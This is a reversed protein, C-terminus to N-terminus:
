VTLIKNEIQFAKNTGCVGGKGFFKPVGQVKGLLPETIEKGLPLIDGVKLDLLVKTTVKSRALEIVMEVESNKLRDLFREIWSHDVELQDSQFGSYLKTKIPEITSYPICFTIMGTFQDLELGFPITIVLDSPSVISVFQPNIESRVYHVTLPHITKWAKELDALIMNVVKQILRTEVATFERGEIRYNTKGSGGLFIDVLTFVLKPDLILIAHGRLSEMKFIHLSSPVPLARIFEGFKMMQIGRPGFDIVKRLFMSFANRFLRAFIDNVIELTPMRGRIIRDQNAFDFRVAGAQGKQEAPTDVKGDEIGKLLADIEDQSLLKEM